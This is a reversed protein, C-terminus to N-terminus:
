QGGDSTATLLLLRNEMEKLPMLDGRKSAVDIGARYAAEAEATRGLQELAKGHALYVASNNKQAATARDFADAADDWRELTSLATGLGFLAVPDEADIELVQSFMARKREADARRAAAQESAIEEASKTSESQGQKAFTKRVAQAAHAEATPKDGLKMYYLSLNTNVIPEDPAVEELRQFINIAEEFRESRGLIVGVAEYADSFTPNAALAQELLGLAREEEGDAFVRIARDYLAVARAERDAARHFPLLVVDAEVPGAPGAFRLRTGPTRNARDLYAFAIPGDAVTSLTRSVIQGIPKEIIADNADLAQLPEGVAPLADLARRAADLDLALNRGAVLALGRLAFPLSGYTRVRAIVEQGIYCGKTYSVLEQELCTEPLLRERGPTDVDKRVIGAEIRTLDLLADLPEGAPCALDHRKAASAIRETIAAIPADDAPIALVFGRDGTLSKAMAFAGPPADLADLSVIANTAVGDWGPDALRGFATVLADTARPGQLAFWHYRESADALTVDDAFLFEDLAEALRTVAPRETVLLFAAHGDVDDPLRHLSLIEVLHGTRTVRATANGAGPELGEVDNTLQSHLFRAADAGTALLAGISTAGVAKPAADLKGCLGAERIRRATELLPRDPTM